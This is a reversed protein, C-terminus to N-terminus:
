RTGRPYLEAATFLIGAHRAAAMVDGMNKTPIIGGTGGKNHDYCWRYVSTPHIKRGIAALARVLKRAGGFKAIVTEAQSKPQPQTAM